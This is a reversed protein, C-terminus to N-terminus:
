GAGDSIIKVQIKLAARTRPRKQQKVIRLPLRLKAASSRIKIFAINAM